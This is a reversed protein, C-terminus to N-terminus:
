KAVWICNSPYTYFCHFHFKLIALEAYTFHPFPEKLFLFSFKTKCFNWKQLNEFDVHHSPWTPTCFLPLIVQKETTHVVHAYSSLHEIKDEQTGLAPELKIGPYNSCM